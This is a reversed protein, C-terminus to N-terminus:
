SGTLSVLVGVKFVRQSHQQAPPDGGARGVFALVLGCIIVRFVVRIKM